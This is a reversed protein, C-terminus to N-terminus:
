QRKKYADKKKGANPAVPKPPVPLGSDSIEKGDWIMIPPHDHEGERARMVLWAEGQKSPESWHADIVDGLQAQRFNRTRLERQLIKCADEHSKASVHIDYEIHQVLLIKYTSKRLAAM